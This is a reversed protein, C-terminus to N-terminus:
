LQLSMPEANSCAPSGETQRDRSKVIAHDHREFLGVWAQIAAGLAGMYTDEHRGLSEGIRRMAATASSTNSLDIADIVRWFSENHSIGPAEKVLNEYVDSAKTHRVWPRGISILWGLHDCVKKAIVGFWIDDFRRYPWGQGQLPFYALPTFERRFCLNMGCIPVFQGRPLIRSEDPPTFDTMSGKVLQYPADLDPVGSWLGVSLMVGDLKGRDGYPLGRTRMGLVSEAWRPTAHLAKLHGGLFDQGTIPHCDDDLTVIHDCHLRYAMWFGFSRIASDRRSIIWASEGLEQEIEPWAFHYQTDVGKSRAPADEVVILTDWFRAKEWKSRFARLQSQRCTPVVLAITM